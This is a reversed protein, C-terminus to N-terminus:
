KNPPPMDVPLCAIRRCLTRRAEDIILRQRNMNLQVDEESAKNSIDNYQRGAPSEFFAVIQALTSEPISAAYFRAREDVFKAIMTTEAQEYADFATRGEPTSIEEGLQDRIAAMRAKDTSQIGAEQASLLRRGFAMGTPSPPPGTETAQSPAEEDPPKFNIVVEFRGGGVPDGDLTKPKMLMVKTMKLAADGFGMGVPTEDMAACNALAGEKTVICSVKIRGSLRLVTALRPYFAQLEENSPRHVWDPNTIVGELPLLPRAERLGSPPPAAATAGGSVFLAVMWFGLRLRM